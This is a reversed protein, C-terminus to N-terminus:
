ARVRVFDAVAEAVRACAEADGVTIRLCEPLKFSVTRRVIIGRERLARDCAQAEAEDRFRALIFNAESPDSPVGARELQRKYM